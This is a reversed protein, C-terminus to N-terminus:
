RPRAALHCHLPFRDALEPALELFRRGAPDSATDQGLIERRWAPNAYVIEEDVIRGGEDRVARLVIVSDVLQDFAEEYHRDPAADERANM